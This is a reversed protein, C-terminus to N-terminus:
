TWRDQLFSIVDSHTENDHYVDYTAIQGIHGTFQNDGDQNGGIGMNESADSGNYSPNDSGLSDGDGLLEMEPSENSDLRTSLILESQDGAYIQTSDSGDSVAYLWDNDSGDALAYGIKSNNSGGNDLIRAFDSPNDPQLVIYATAGTGDHLYNFLGTSDPVVWSDSGSLFAAPHGNIADADYSPSGIANADLDSEFEVLPDITDTDSLETMSQVDYNTQLNEADPIASVESGDILSRWTGGTFDVM